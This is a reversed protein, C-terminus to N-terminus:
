RGVGLARHRQTRVITDATVSSINTIITGERPKFPKPPPPTLKEPSYVVLQYQPETGGAKFTNTLGDGLAQLATLQAGSIVGNVTSTESVGPIYCRGHRRRGKTGTSFSLLMTNQPPLADGTVAGPYPQTFGFEVSEDGDEAVDSVTLKDWNVASSTCAILLPGITAVWANVFDNLDGGPGVHRMHVGWEVKQNMFTGQTRVRYTHGITM